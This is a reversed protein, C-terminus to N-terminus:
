PRIIRVRRAVRGGVRIWEVAGDANRLFEAREGQVWGLGMLRDKAYFAFPAPPRPPRLRAKVRPKM